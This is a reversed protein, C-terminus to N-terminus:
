LGLLVIWDELGIEKLFQIKDYGVLDGLHNRRKLNELCVKYERIKVVRM